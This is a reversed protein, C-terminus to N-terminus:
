SIRHNESSTRVTKVDGQLSKRSSKRHGHGGSKKPSGKSTARVYVKFCRWLVELFNM